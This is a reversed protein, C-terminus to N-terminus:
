QTCRNMSMSIAKGISTSASAITAASPELMWFTMMASATTMAGFAARTMRELTSEILSFGNM